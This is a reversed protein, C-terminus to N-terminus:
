IGEHLMSSLPYGLEWLGRERRRQPSKHVRRLFGAPRNQKKRARALDSGDARKVRVRETICQQEAGCWRQVM